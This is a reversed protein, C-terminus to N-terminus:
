PSLEEFGSINTLDTFTLVRYKMCSKRNLQAVKLEKSIEGSLRCKNRHQSLLVLSHLWNIIYHHLLQKHLQHYIMTLILGSKDSLALALPSNYCWCSGCVNRPRSCISTDWIESVCKVFSYFKISVSYIVGYIRIICPFSIDNYYLFRYLIVLFLTGFM